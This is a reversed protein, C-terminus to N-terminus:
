GKRAKIIGNPSLPMYTHSVQRINCHDLPLSIRPTNIVSESAIDVSGTVHWNTSTHPWPVGRGGKDM